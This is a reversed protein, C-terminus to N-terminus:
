GDGATVDITIGSGGPNFLFVRTGFSSSHAGVPSVYTNAWIPTPYLEFFRSEYSAGVDGTTVYVSVPKDSEVAAGLMVGGPVVHTEGEDLTITSEFSGNADLDLDVKTTDSTSVIVLGTYEFVQNTDANQGAPIDYRLGSKDLDLVAADSALLPGAGTAYGTQTM